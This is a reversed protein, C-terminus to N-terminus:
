IIRIGPRGLEDRYKVMYRTQDCGHDNEKRPEEKVPKGDPSPAWVYGPLEELTSCPKRAEELRGDREVLANRLFYIRPKGDAATRLRAQVAEIGDKVNKDAATTGLGIEHEFRARNESDHDTIIAQPYPETWSSRGYRDTTTVADLINRAHQDVTRGTMYFERYLYLRGDPDEAWMGCVFPNAFGFDVSWYRAWSEWGAPMEDIVHVEPTFEDFIVGEAAVWLGKRLRLYRVGTLSDLKTVYERGIRTLEFSRDPLEDFLVPNDEHRCYIMKATGTDCRAKLWHTPADPNCDAIVQQYPLRGNRLRTLVYEWDTITLETAEQCYITDYETSMIKTPKDMGGILIVSGNAFRYQAPEEASGGYFWLTRNSLAEAAVDRRWTKLASSGLSVQTKRLILGNMGPYKLAQLLLKELCARSNHTPVFGDTLYLGDWTDITICRCHKEGIAEIREIWRRIPKVRKARDMKRSLHFLRAPDNIMIQVTYARMGSGGQYSPIRSRITTAGGLSEVLWAVDEALRQSVSTFSVDAATAAGVTGDTDMLGRLIEWRIEPSNVKYSDPIFKGAAGMGMLGLETLHHSLSLRAVDDPGYAEEARADIAAQATERTLYSGIYIEGPPTGPVRLRAMWKGSSTRSVYGPKARDAKSRPRWGDRAIRYQGAANGVKPTFVLRYDSGMEEAVREAIQQDASTFSVEGPRLYGDGLLVGLTYPPVPVSVPDFTVPVIPPLWYRAREGHRYRHLPLMQATSLVGSCKVGNGDRWNVSWLHGDSCEVVAGDRLTVRLVPAPGDFPIDVVTAVGGAPTLVKDGMVLDGMRCPGAPTQVTSDLPQAKGTGAPGSLVLEADRSELVEVASGRPVYHHTLPGQRGASGGSSGVPALSM